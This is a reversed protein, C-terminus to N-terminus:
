ALGFHLKYKYASIYAQGTWSSGLAAKQTNRPLHQYNFLPTSSGGEIKNVLHQAYFLICGLGVTWLPIATKSPDQKKEEALTSLVFSLETRCGPSLFAM